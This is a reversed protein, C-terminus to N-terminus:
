KKSSIKKERLKLKRPLKEHYPSMALEVNVIGKGKGGGFVCVCWMVGGGGGGGEEKVLSLM